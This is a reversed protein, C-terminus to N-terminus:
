PQANQGGIRGYLINQSSVSGHLSPNAKFGFTPHPFQHHLQVIAWIRKECAMMRAEM